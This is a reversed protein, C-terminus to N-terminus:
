EVKLTVDGILNSNRIVDHFRAGLSQKTNQIAEGITEGNLLNVIVKEAAVGNDSYYSTTSAGYVAVAGNEGAALLQHAMTNIYPSDAYTAFCALPLAM